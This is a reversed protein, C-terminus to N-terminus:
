LYLGKFDTTLAPHNKDRSSIGVPTLPWSIGIRPDDYRVGCDAEPSYYQTHLYLLESNAELVQFGHACGEPIVLMLDNTQSLELAHWKLFTPSNLRLDLAVDWVRGKICRILKMESWPEKQYHFGRIIGRTKTISHNIQVIERQAIIPALEQACYLRTFAGRDDKYSTTAIVCVGPIVTNQITM